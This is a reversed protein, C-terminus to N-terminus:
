IRCLSYISLMIYLVYVNFIKGKRRLIDFRHSATISSRYPSGKTSPAYKGKIRRKHSPLGHSFRMTRSLRATLKEERKGASSVPIKSAFVQWRHIKGGKGEEGEGERAREGEYRLRLDVRFYSRTRGKGIEGGKWNERM